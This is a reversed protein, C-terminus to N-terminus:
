HRYPLSAWRKRGVGEKDELDPVGQRSSHNREKHLMEIHVDRLRIHKDRGRPFAMTRVSEMLEIGYAYMVSIDKTGKLRTKRAVRSLGNATSDHQKPTGDIAIHHDNMM